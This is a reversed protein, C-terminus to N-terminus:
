EQEETHQQAITALVHTTFLGSALFHAGERMMMRLIGAGHRDIGTVNHLDVVCARGHRASCTQQWCSRLAAIWPQALRGQLVWRQETPTETLTIRLM